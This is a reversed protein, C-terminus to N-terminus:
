AAAPIKNTLPSFQPGAAVRPSVHPTRGGREM